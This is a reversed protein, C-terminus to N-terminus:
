RSAGRVPACVPAKMAKFASTVAGTVANDVTGDIKSVRPPGAGLPLPSPPAAPACEGPKLPAYAAEAIQILKVAHDAGADNYDEPWTLEGSTVARGSIVWSWSVTTQASTTRWSMGLGHMGRAEAELVLDDPLALGFGSQLVRAQVHPALFTALAAERLNDQPLRGVEGRPARGDDTKKGDVTGNDRLALGGCTGTIWAAGTALDYARVEDCFHYHGRRGRLVLWGETPARFRGLPLADHRERTEDICTRWAAYRAGRTENRAKAACAARPEREGPEDRRALAHAAFAEDARRLWGRTETGCTADDAPCLIPALTSGKASEATLTKRPSPPVWSYLPHNAHYTARDEGLELYHALWAQGGESWWTKASLGSEFRLPETMEGEALAFCPTELLKTLAANVPALDGAAGLADVSKGLRELEAAAAAHVTTRPVCPRVIDASAGADGDAVGPATKAARPSAVHPPAAADALTTSASVAENAVPARKADHHQRPACAILGSLFALLGRRSRM